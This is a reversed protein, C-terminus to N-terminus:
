EEREIDVFLLEARKGRRVRVRVERNVMPGIIDDIAEGVGKVRRHTGDVTVELWDQDLDLARLTGNLTTEDQPAETSIEAAPVRLTDSIQKRTGSSLVIPKRDAAGRIEMQDFVKGTPALNRAMKLFTKRYDDSPVIARLGETPDDGAARLISLFTETLAEPEPEGTLFM